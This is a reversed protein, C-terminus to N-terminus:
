ANARRRSRRLGVGLLLLGAGLLTATAPEPVSTEADHSFPAFQHVKCNNVGNRLITVCDTGYLDFHLNFGSLLGSVDVNWGLWYLDTGPNTAPSTGPTDQTNVAARTQSTLWSVDLELFLTPYVGHQSLDGGQFELWTELPPVGYLLDNTDYTVGDISFSGFNTGAATQPVLAVSLHWNLSLDLAQGYGTPTNGYGYLTFTRDNTVVTQTAPDWTVNDGELDLQAVPLALAGTTWIGCFAVVGIKSFGNM